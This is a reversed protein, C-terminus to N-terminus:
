DEEAGIVQDDDDDEAPKAPAATTTPAAKAAKAAPAKVLKIPVRETKAVQALKANQGSPAASRRSGRVAMEMAKRFVMGDLNIGDEPHMRNWAAILGDMKFTTRDVEQEYEADKEDAITGRSPQAQDKKGKRNGSGKKGLAMASEDPEPKEQAAEAKAKALEEQSRRKVTFMIPTVKKQRLKAQIKKTITAEFAKSDGSWKVGNVELIEDGPMIAMDDDSHKENYKAVAGSGRVKSIQIPADDKPISLQWGMLKALPDKKNLPIRLRVEFSKAGDGALGTKKGQRDGRLGQREGTHGMLVDYFGCV